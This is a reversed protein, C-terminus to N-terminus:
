SYAIMHCCHLRNESGVEKAEVTCCGHYHMLVFRRYGVLDFRHLSRDITRIHALFFQFFSM